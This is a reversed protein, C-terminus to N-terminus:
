GVLRNYLAATAGTILGAGLSWAFLGYVFGAFSLQWGMRGFDAHVMHGSMQMMASPMSIVFASCIVWAAAFVVTSAIALKMADIKM